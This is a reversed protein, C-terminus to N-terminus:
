STVHAQLKEVLVDQLNRRSDVITLAQLTKKIDTFVDVAKRTNGKAIDKEAIKIINMLAFADQTEQNIAM